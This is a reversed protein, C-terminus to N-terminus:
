EILGECRQALDQRCQRSRGRHRRTSGFPRHGNGEVNAQRCDAQPDRNCAPGVEIVEEIATRRNHGYATEFTGEPWLATECATAWRAFDAMRPARTLKTEPLRKLGQVIVDLLAGFISPHQANFEAWFEEEPRRREEPIPDLTLFISRDALDPRGAVDGIGNLITPRSVHFLVEDQDTYVRRSAFGGGTALRCLRDSDAQSLSSLNDFALVHSNNAALFLDREERPFARLPVTNPDVVAKIVRTFTSKASGQEGSVALVPYPGFGRFFGLICSVVLVFDHQSKVNLFERLAEVSGGQVPVPLPRMGAARRFRVPPNDIVKWGTADVEVARWAPDCLDIYLRGNLEGVRVHTIREPGDNIAQAEISNLADQLATSGPGCDTERYFRGSLWREFGKGRIGWTERHGNVDVDAYGTGDPTHFLQASQALEILKETQTKGRGRADGNEKAILKDLLAVRCDADKLKARVTEFAALDEKKLTALMKISEPAFPRGPAKATEAILEEFPDRFPEAADITAAIQSQTDIPDDPVIPNEPNSM